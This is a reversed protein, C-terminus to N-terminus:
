ADVVETLGATIIGTLKATVEVVECNLSKQNDPKYNICEQKINCTIKHLSCCPLTTYTGSKDNACSNCICEPFNLNCTSSHKKEDSM